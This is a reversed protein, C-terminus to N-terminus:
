AVSAQLNPVADEGLPTDVKTLISTVDWVAALSCSTRATLHPLM